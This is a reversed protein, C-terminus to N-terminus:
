IPTQSKHLLSHGEQIQKGELTTRMVFLSEWGARSVYCQM